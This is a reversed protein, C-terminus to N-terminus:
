EDSVKIWEEPYLDKGDLGYNNAYWPAIWSPPRIIIKEPNPNLYAAWWSFSSNTIINHKCMSMLYFDHYHTEGEVFFIRGPINEFEKKALDMRNSFVLFVTNEPFISMANRFYSAGYHRYLKGEPDEQHYSRMHVSVVNPYSLLHGYKNQLYEMIEPHPKFLEVIEQKHHRFYKESQFFGNLCMNPSYPIPDYHFHPEQYYSHIYEKPPLYANLRHFVKQYNLPTNDARRHILDPFIPIADHDLALSITAAIVFLQNGLQGTLTGVVFPKNEACLTTFLYIFAFMTSNLKGM